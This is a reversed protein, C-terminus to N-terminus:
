RGGMRNKYELCAADVDGSAWGLERYSQSLQGAQDWAKRVYELEAIFEPMCIERAEKELAALKNRLNEVAKPFYKQRSYLRAIEADNCQPADSQIDRM